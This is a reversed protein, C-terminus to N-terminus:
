MFIRHYFVCLCPRQLGELGTYGIRSIRHVGTLWLYTSTCGSLPLQAGTAGRSRTCLVWSGSSHRASSCAPLLLPLELATLQKCSTRERHFLPAASCCTWSSFVLPSLVSLVYSPSSQWNAQTKIVASVVQPRYWRYVLQFSVKYCNLESVGERM